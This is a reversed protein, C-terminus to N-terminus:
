RYTGQRVNFYIDAEQGSEIKRFAMMYILQLSEFYGINKRDNRLKEEMGQITM